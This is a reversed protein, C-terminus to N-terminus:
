SLWVCVVSSGPSDAVPDVSHIWKSELSCIHIWDRKEVGPFQRWCRDILWEHELDRESYEEHESSIRGKAVVPLFIRASNLAVRLSPLWISPPLLRRSQNALSTSCIVILPFTRSSSPHHGTTASFSIEGREREALETEYDKIMDYLCRIYALPFGCLVLGNLQPDGCLTWQKKITTNERPTRHCLPWCGTLQGVSRVLM